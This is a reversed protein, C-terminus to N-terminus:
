KAVGVIDYMSADGAVLYCGNFRWSAKETTDERPDTEYIIGKLPYAVSQSGGWAGTTLVKALMGGRLVLTRGLLSDDWVFPESSEAETEPESETAPRYPFSTALSEHVGVSPQLYVLVYDGEDNLGAAKLEQAWTKLHNKILNWNM